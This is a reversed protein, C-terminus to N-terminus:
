NANYIFFLTAGGVNMVFARTPNNETTKNIINILLQETKRFTKRAFLKNKDSGTDEPHIESNKFEFTKPDTSNSTEPNSPTSNSNENDFVSEDSGKKLGDNASNVIEKDANKASDNKRMIKNRLIQKSKKM